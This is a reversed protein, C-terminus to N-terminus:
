LGASSASRALFLSQLERDQIKELKAQCNETKTGSIFLTTTKLSIQNM